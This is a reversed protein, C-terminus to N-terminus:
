KAILSFKLTFIALLDRVRSYPGSQSPGHKAYLDVVYPAKTAMFILFLGLGIGAEFNEVIDYLFRKENTYDYCVRNVRNQLPFKILM